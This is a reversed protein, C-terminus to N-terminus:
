NKEHTAASDRRITYFLDGGNGLVSSDSQLSWNKTLQYRLYLINIPVVLGINYTASLKETIKKSVVFSTGSEFQKTAANYESTQGLGFESFGLENKISKQLNGIGYANQNNNIMNVASWLASTQSNSLQSQPFGFLLYSLIDQQSIGSPDSFFSLIPNNASGTIKVGAILYPQYTPLNINSASIDIKKTASIDLQPNTIDHIFTITGEKGLTFSHGYAKYAGNKIKLQGLGTIDNYESKNLKIKGTFAAELGKYNLSLEQIKLSLDLLFTLSLPKKYIPENNKNMYIIDPSLTITNSFDMPKIYASLINADGIIKATDNNYFFNLDAQTKIKYAETNILTFGDTKLCLKSAIQNSILDFDGKINLAEKEHQIILTYILKNLNQFEINLAIPYLTLNLPSIDLKTNKLQYLNKDNDYYGSGFFKFNDGNFLTFLANIEHQKENGHIDMNIKNINNDDFFIDNGKLSLQIEKNKDALFNINGKLMKISIDEYHFEKAFIQSSILPHIISGKIKGKFKIEGRMKKLEPLTMKEANIDWNADVTIKNFSELYNKITLNLHLWKKSNIILRISNSDGSLASHIQITKYGEFRTNNKIDINSLTNINIEGYTNNKIYKNKILLHDISLNNKRLYLSANIKEIENREKKEIYILHSLLFKKIEIDIPINLGHIAFKSDNNTSKKITIEPNKIDIENISIKEKLLDTWLWQFKITNIKLAMNENEYYVEKLTWGKLICGEVKKISSYAPINKLIILLGLDTNLIFVFCLILLFTLNLLAEKIM